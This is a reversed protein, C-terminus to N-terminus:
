RELNWKAITWGGVDREEWHDKEKQNERWYGMHTGRSGMPTVHRRM